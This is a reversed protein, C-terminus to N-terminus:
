VPLVQTLNAAVMQLPARDNAREYPTHLSRPTNADKAPFDWFWWEGQVDIEWGYITSEIRLGTLGGTKEPLSCNLSTQEDALVLGCYGEPGKLSTINFREGRKDIAITEIDFFPADLRQVKYGAKALRAARGDTPATTNYTPQYTGNAHLYGTDESTGAAQAVLQARTPPPGTPRAFQRAAAPVPAHSQLAAASLAAIPTM